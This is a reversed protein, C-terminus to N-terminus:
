ALEDPDCSEVHRADLARLLGSASALTSAYWGEEPPAAARYPAGSEVLRATLLFTGADTGPTITITTTGDTAKLTRPDARTWLSRADERLREHMADITLDSQLELAFATRNPEGEYDDHDPIMGRQIWDDVSRFTETTPWHPETEVSWTLHVVYAGEDGVFLFDDRDIRRAVARLARAHAQAHLRHSSALERRLEDELGNGDRVHSWPRLLVLPAPIM